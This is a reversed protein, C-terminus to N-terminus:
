YAVANQRAIRERIVCLSVEDGALAKDCVAVMLVDGRMISDSRFRSIESTSKSVASKSNRKM